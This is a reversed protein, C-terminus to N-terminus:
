ERLIVKIKKCKLKNKVSWIRNGSGMWGGVAGCGVGVGRGVWNGCPHGYVGRRRVELSGPAELRKLTLYMM